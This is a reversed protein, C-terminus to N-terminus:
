IGQEYSKRERKTATRASIIRINNGRYTYAVILLQQNQSYGITLFRDEENSHLTDERTISFPDEFITTADEFSVNHKKLNAQAKAGDWEVNLAM